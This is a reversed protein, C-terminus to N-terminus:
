TSPNSIFLTYSAVPLVQKSAVVLLQSLTSRQATQQISFDYSSLRTRRRTVVSAIIENNTQVM